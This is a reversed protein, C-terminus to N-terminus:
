GTCCIIWGWRANLSTSIAIISQETANSHENIIRYLTTLWNNAVEWISTQTCFHQGNFWYQWHVELCPSRDVKDVKGNNVEWLKLETNQAWILIGTPILPSFTGSMQFYNAYSRIGWKLALTGLSIVGLIFASKGRSTLLSLVMVQICYKIKSTNSPGPNHETYEDAWLYMQCTHNIVTHSIKFNLVIRTDLIIILFRNERM